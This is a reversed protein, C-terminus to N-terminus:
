VALQGMETLQTTSSIVFILESLSSRTFSSLSFQFKVLFILIWSKIKMKLVIETCFWFVM